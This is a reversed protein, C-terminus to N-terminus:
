LPGHGRLASVVRGLTAATDTPAEADGLLWGFAGFPVTSLSTGAVVWLPADGRREAAHAVAAAFGTRGSGNPGVVVVGHGATLAKLAGDLERDRGVLGSTAWRTM